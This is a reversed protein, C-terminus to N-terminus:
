IEEIKDHANFLEYKSIKLKRHKLVYDSLLYCHILEAWIETYAEFINLVQSSSM